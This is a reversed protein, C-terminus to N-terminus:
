ENESKDRRSMPKMPNEHYALWRFRNRLCHLWHQMQKSTMCYKDFEASAFVLTALVVTRVEIDPNNVSKKPARRPWSDIFIVFTTATKILMAPATMVVTPFVQIGISSIVMDSHTWQNKSPLLLSRYLTRYMEANRVNWNIEQIIIEFWEKNDRQLPQM